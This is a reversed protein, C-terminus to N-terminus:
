RSLCCVVEVHTTQPFMDFPKVRDVRFGLDVLRRVDRALTAPDCSIIFLRAVTQAALAAVVTPDCGQRPPNLLAVDAPGRRQVLRECPGSLFTAKVQNLRANFRADAIAEAAREIGTVQGGAKAALLTLLGIGCYLDLVREGPRLGALEIVRRYLFDAQAVNVQCFSGASVRCTLGAIEDQIWDRGALLEEKGRDIPWWVVGRVAPDASLLEAAFASAARNLRFGHLLILAECTRWSTRITVQTLPVPTNRLRPSIAALIREGLPSHIACRDIPVFAHTHHGMLGIKWGGAAQTMALQIKHRYHLARPSPQCDEVSLDLRAIRQFADSVRQRKYALQEAENLHMLQCGGCRGFYHCPPSVRHPSARLIQHMSARAFNNKRQHITCEVREGPLASNVFIKVGELSGVGEGKSNLGTVEIEAM